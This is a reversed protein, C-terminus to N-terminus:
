EDVDLKLDADVVDDCFIVDCVFTERSALVDLVQTPEPDCALARGVCESIPDGGDERVLAADRSIDV